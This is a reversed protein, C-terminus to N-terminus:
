NTDITVAQANGSYSQQEVSISRYDSGSQSINVEGELGYQTVQSEFQNGTQTINAEHRNGEQYILGINQSGEQNITAENFNGYQDISAYNASGQSIRNQNITNRNGDGIQSILAINGSNDKINIENSLLSEESKNIYSYATQDNVGPASELNEQAAVSLSFVTAACGLTFASVAQSLKSTNVSHLTNPDHQQISM